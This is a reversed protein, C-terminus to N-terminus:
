FSNYLARKTNKRELEEFHEVETEYMTEYLVDDGEPQPRFSNSKVPKEQKAEKAIMRKLQIAKKLKTVKKRKKKDVFTKVLENTEEDRHM